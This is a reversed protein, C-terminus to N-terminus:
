LWGHRAEGPGKQGLNKKETKILNEFPLCEAKATQEAVAGHTARSRRELRSEIEWM